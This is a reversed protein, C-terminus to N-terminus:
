PMGGFTNEVPCNPGGNFVSYSATIHTTGAEFTVDCGTSGSSSTVNNKALVYSCLAPCADVDVRCSEIKFATPIDPNQLDWSQNETSVCDKGILVEDANCGLGLGLGLVVIALPIRVFRRSQLPRAV